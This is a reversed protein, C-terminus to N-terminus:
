ELISVATNSRRKPSYAMHPLMSNFVNSFGENNFFQKRKKRVKKNTATIFRQWFLSVDMEHERMTKLIEWVREEMQARENPGNPDPSGKVNQQSM